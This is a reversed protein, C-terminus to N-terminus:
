VTLQIVSGPPEAIIAAVPVPVHVACVPLGPVAVMVVGVEGVVVIVVKLEAPVYLKM